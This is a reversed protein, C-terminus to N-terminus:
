NFKIVMVVHWGDSRASEAAKFSSNAKYRTVVGCQTFVQYTYM